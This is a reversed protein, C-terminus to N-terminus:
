FSRFFFSLPDHDDYDAQSEFFETIPDVMVRMLWSIPPMRKLYNSITSTSLIDGASFGVIKAARPHKKLHTLAQSRSMFGCLKEFAIFKLILDDSYTRKRGHNSPPAILKVVPTFDVTDFFKKLRQENIQIGSNSRAFNQSAEVPASDIIVDDGEKILGFGFLLETLQHFYKDFFEVGMKKRFKSMTTHNPAKKLKLAKLWNPHANLIRETQRYSDSIMTQSLLHVLIFTNIPIGPRGRSDPAREPEHYDMMFLILEVVPRSLALIRAINDYSKPIKKKIKEINELTYELPFPLKIEKAEVKQLLSDFPFYEQYIM